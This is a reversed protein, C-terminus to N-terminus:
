FLLAHRTQGSTAEVGFWKPFSDQRPIYYAPHSYTFPPYKDKKAQRLRYGARDMELQAGTEVTALLTADMTGNARNNVSQYHALVQEAQSKTIAPHATGLSGCASVPLIVATLAALQRRM